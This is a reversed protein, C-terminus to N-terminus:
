PDLRDGAHAKDIKLEQGAASNALFWDDFLLRVLPTSMIYRRVYYLALRYLARREIPYRCVTVTFGGLVDM